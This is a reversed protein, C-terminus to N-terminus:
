SEPRELVEWDSFLVVSWDNAHPASGCVWVIYQRAACLRGSHLAVLRHAKWSRTEAITMRCSSHSSHLHFRLQDMRNTLKHHNSYQLARHVTNINLFEIGQRWGIPGYMRVWLLLKTVGHQQWRIKTQHSAASSLSWVKVGDLKSAPRSPPLFHSIM